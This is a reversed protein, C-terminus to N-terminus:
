YIGKLERMVEDRTAAALADKMTAHIRDKVEYLAYCPGDEYKDYAIAEASHADNLARQLHYLHFRIRRYFARTQKPTPM